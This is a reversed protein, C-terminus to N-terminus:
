RDYNNEQKNTKIQKYRANNFASRCRDSCFKAPQNVKTTLEIGCTNCFGLRRATITKVKRVTAYPSILELIKNKADQNSTANVILDLRINLLHKSMM